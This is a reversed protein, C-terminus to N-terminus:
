SATNNLVRERNFLIVDSDSELDWTALDLLAQYAKVFGKCFFYALALVGIVRRFPEWSSASAISGFVIANAAFFWPGMMFGFACCMDSYTDPFCFAASRDVFALYTEQKSYMMRLRWIWTIFVILVYGFTIFAENDIDTVENM